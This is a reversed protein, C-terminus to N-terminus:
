LAICEWCRMREWCGRVSVADKERYRNGLVLPLVMVGAPKQRYLEKRLGTPISVSDESLIRDIQSNAVAEATSVKELWVLHLDKWRIGANGGVNEKPAMEWLFTLIIFELVYIDIFM